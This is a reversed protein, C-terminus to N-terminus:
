GFGNVKIVDGWKGRVKGGNERQLSRQSGMHNASRLFCIKIAWWTNSRKGVKIKSLFIVSKHLSKQQTNLPEPPIEISCNSEHNLHFFCYVKDYIM